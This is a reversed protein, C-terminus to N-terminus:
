PSFRRVELIAGALKRNIRRFRRSSAMGILVLLYSIFFLVAVINSDKTTLGVLIGGAAMTMGVGMFILFWVSEKVQKIGNVGTIRGNIQVTGDSQASLVKLTISERKNILLPNIIVCETSTDIPVDMETPNTDIVEASLILNKSGFSIEIPKVFDSDTIPVNGTNIIKLITIHVDPVSKGDFQVILRGKLEESHTLVSTQSLIEYSISKKNRQILFIIVMVGITLASLFVISFFQILPDQFAELM